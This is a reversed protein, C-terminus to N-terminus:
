AFSIQLTKRGYHRTLRKKDKKEDRESDSDPNLGMFNLVEQLPRLSNQCQAISRSMACSLSFSRSITNYIVWQSWLLPRWSKNAFTLIGIPLIPINRMSNWCMYYCPHDSAYKRPNTSLEPPGNECTIVFTIVCSIVFTIVITIVITIVFMIVNTIVYTISLIM